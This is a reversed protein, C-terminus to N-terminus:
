GNKEVSLEKSRTKDMSEAIGDAGSFEAISDVVSAGVAGMVLTTRLIEREGLWRRRTSNRGRRCRSRGRMRSEKEFTRQLRKGM